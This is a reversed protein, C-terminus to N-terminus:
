NRFFRQWGPSKKKWCDTKEWICHIKGSNYVLIIEQNENFCLMEPLIEYKEVMRTIGLITNYIGDAVAPITDGLAIGSTKDTIGIVRPVDTVAAKFKTANENGSDSEVAQLVQDDANDAQATESDTGEEQADETDTGDTTDTSEGTLSELAADAEQAAAEQAAQEKLQNLEEEEQNLADIEEQEMPTVEVVLGDKNFYLRDTGQAIYGVIKKENVHIRLTHANVRELDFSDVFPINEANTHKQFLMALVTNSTMPTTLVYEKIQDDTYRTSGVVYVNDVRFLFFFAGLALLVIVAVAGATLMKGEKTLRRKRIKKENKWRDRIRIVAGLQGFLQDPHEYGREIYEAHKVVSEGQASLGAVVLAAGGRLERACVAAGTLQRGGSIVAQRGSVTVRGGMKELEEVIQFRKEFITEEIRSEGPVTLLVAMLISQMDTPFGPYPMTSVKEVPFRIGAANARLTGSRMEWQGGMKEYVTLVSRMERPDVDKLSIQGRTAAAAYLCTGAVIRDSPITYEVDRLAAARRMWIKGTGIGGSRRGWRRYFVVFISFRRNGPVIKWFRKGERQLARLSHMKRLEWVPFRSVSIHAPFDRRVNGVSRERRRGSRREWKKMAELHLNVPRAGITCGGPYGIRIRKCRGLMSGLLLISSRMTRTEEGPIGSERIKKCDMMLTHDKWATKVGLSQLIAEMEFVDAIRPCNHLVTVGEHLVAAAMMPLAANEIGSGKSRRGASWKWADM